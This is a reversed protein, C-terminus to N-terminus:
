PKIGSFILGNSRASNLAALYLRKAGPDFYAIGTVSSTGSACGGGVVMSLDYLNGKARPAAVGAYQCGSTVGTGAVVGQSSVIITVPENSGTVSAVGVYNGAIASLSPTQDYNAAYASTFTFPSNVSAYSVSGNFSQKVAYSASVTAKNVGQESPNFDIGDSSSFSGSASSGTGQVFGAVLASVNPFSYLIWYNGNDLVIGTVTRSTNTSGTWLGEASAVAAPTTGGGDGGGGCAALTVASSVAFARILPTLKVKM